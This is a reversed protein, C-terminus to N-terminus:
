EHCRTTLCIQTDPCQVVEQRLVSIAEPLTYPTCRAAKEESERCYSSCIKLVEMFSPATRSLPAAITTGDGCIFTCKNSGTMPNGSLHMLLGTKGNDFKRIAWHCESWIKVLPGLTIADCGIGYYRFPLKTCFLRSDELIRNRYTSFLQVNDKFLTTLAKVEDERDYEFVYKKEM